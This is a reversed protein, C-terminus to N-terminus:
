LACSLFTLPDSQIWVRLAPKNKLSVKRVDLPQLWNQVRSHASDEGAVVLPLPICVGAILCTGPTPTKTTGM